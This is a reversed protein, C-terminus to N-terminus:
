NIFFPFCFIIFGVLKNLYTHLFSLKHYRIYGVIISTFRIVVIAILWVIMWMGFDVIPLFVFLLICILIFDAISDLTAGLASAMNFKRAIWGDLVDSVGCIGYIIMFSLEFPHLFLLLFSLAIRSITIINAVM